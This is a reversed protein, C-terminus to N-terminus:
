RSLRTFVYDRRRVQMHCRTCVEGAAVEEFRATPSSRLYEIMVWDNHAPNRGRLKRMVAVVGVFRQGPRRISKVLISGYPYPFRQRGGPALRKRTRNVFVNKTGLHADTPRAPIPLRNLKLWQNFGACNGGSGRSGRFPSRHGCCRRLADWGGYRQVRLPEVGLSRVRPETWRALSAGGVNRLPGLRGM